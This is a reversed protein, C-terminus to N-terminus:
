QRLRVPTLKRLLPSVANRFGITHICIGGILGVACGLLTDIFRARILLGPDTQGLTAAEALLITLPTIFTVAFAYHRVVTLEVVITLVMIALPIHWADLPLLLIGWSMLMGIATGLVRHLQKNWVARLSVGQIVALCSVPAWYPKQLQLLQALGLAIGVFLAIVASDFVVYDFNASPEMAPQPAHRRLVHLSYFFAILWALLSGMLMLGVLHPVQLATVPTYAGIAAAMVFFLSGPPGLQYFRGVMTALLAIFVVVPVLLMPQLHSLLGLTYCASMAFGCAMLTVMRHSLSTNPVYLFVLGGISGVLGYELHGISAGILPPLGTALAAALPLQWPRTNPQITTLHQWETRMLQKVATWSHISIM